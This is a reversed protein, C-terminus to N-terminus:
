NRILPQNNIANQNLIKNDNYTIKFDCKLIEHKIVILHILQKIKFTPSYLNYLSTFICLM